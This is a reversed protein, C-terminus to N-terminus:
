RRFQDRVRATEALAKKLDLKRCDVYWNAWKGRCYRPVLAMFGALVKEAEDLCPYPDEGREYRDLASYLLGGWRSVAAMLQAPYVLADFFHDREAPDDPPPLKELEAAVAAFREAQGLAAAVELGSIAGSDVYCHHRFPVKAQELIRMVNTKFEATKSM